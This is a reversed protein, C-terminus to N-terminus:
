LAIKCLETRHSIGGVCGSGRCRQAVTQKRLQVTQSQFATGNTTPSPRIILICKLNTKIKVIIVLFIILIFHNNCQM